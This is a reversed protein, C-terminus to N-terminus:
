TNKTKEVRAKLAQIRKSRRRPKERTMEYCTCTKRRHRRCHFCSVTPAADVTSPLPPPQTRNALKGLTVWLTWICLINNHIQLQEDTLDMPDLMKFAQYAHVIAVYPHLSLNLVPFNAYPEEYTVLKRSFTTRRLFPMGDLQLPVFIYPYTNQEIM